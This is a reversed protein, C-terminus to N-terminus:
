PKEERERWEPKVDRLRKAKEPDHRNQVRLRSFRRGQERHPTCDFGCHPCIWDGKKGEFDRGCQDCFMWRSM